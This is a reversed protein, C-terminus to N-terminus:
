SQNDDAYRRREFAEARRASIIRIADGRMTYAIALVRQEVMALCAFRLEDAAQSSDLWELILPDEFALCAMEFTIGHKAVNAAAKADDWQFEGDDM